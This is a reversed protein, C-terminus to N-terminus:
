SDVRFREMSPAWSPVHCALSVLCLARSVSLVATNLVKPVLTLDIKLVVWLTPPQFWMPNELSAFCKSGQRGPTTLASLGGALGM